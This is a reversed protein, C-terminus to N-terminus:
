LSFLSHSRIKQLHERTFSIPSSGVMEACKSCASYLNNYVKGVSSVNETFYLVSKYTGRVCCTFTSEQDYLM